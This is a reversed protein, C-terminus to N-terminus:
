RWWPRRRAEAARQAPASVTQASQSLHHLHEQVWLLHPHVPPPAPAAADVATAAGAPATRDTETAGRATGPGGPSGSGGSGAAAATGNGAAASAAAALARPVAPGILPPAPILPPEPSRASRPSWALRGAWTSWHSWAPLGSLSSRGVEDAVQDYFGALSGAESRLAVCAPTDGYEDSGDLPLCAGGPPLGPATVDPRLAALAHASLRLRMSANVMTWLDEKSLKKSGQETLFGRVADDLRISANAAAVAAAPPLMLESLAWDVAQSLYEAGRRFTDALDDGVVSAVGRPWFLVGVVLSVACGIAVDEIRLLGVRWGAPALLNFLVVITVTFAAQGVLFPTTGPAYAAVLVAVPLAVWLATQGTGIALLLLAGVVFGVVTGALARWATGGTSAASTRLVSLTGLVVWFAHQVGSVDAVAVAAALALAGRLSNLFWVSRVTAHRTVLLTARRLGVQRPTGASGSLLGRVNPILPVSGAAVTGAGASAAGATVGPLGDHPGYWKRREAAITEPDARRSAIMADAVAARATVAIGQAHVAQAAAMRADPEGVRGSLDRLQAASDERARELGAIDPDAPQGTLLDHTNTFLAAAARLLVRDAPSNTTLDVHGDFADGVQSGGWELLQVLSSLAQDATALGSPRYPAALFATRLKEKAAHMSQPDTVVGDAAANLRSALEAALDATAARLKDGPPKPSLLLVAITGAASALWWGALRSPIMSADGASVVPLVYAFMAAASGSAANPGAIGAFFIAFTVPVTVVVALWTTGSVLTGIIIALSGTVALGAHAIFKDKRTGGFGAIVLTAFGGFTAFLAMQPDGIVKDTLAFLSPVVVTARM